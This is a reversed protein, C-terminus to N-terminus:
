KARHKKAAPKRDENLLESLRILVNQRFEKAPVEGVVITGLERVVEALQEPTISNPPRRGYRDPYLRKLAWASARWQKPDKSAQQINRLFTLEPGLEAKRLQEAFAPDHIATKRITEVHCGVYQAAMLRTGGVALIAFVQRKKDDDLIM